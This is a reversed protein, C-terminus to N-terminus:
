RLAGRPTGAGAADKASSSTGSHGPLYRPRGARTIAATAGDVNNFSHSSLTVSSGQSGQIDLAAWCPMPSPSPEYRLAAELSIHYLRPAATPATRHGWRRLAFTTPVLATWAAHQVGLKKPTEEDSETMRHLRRNAFQNLYGRHPWHRMTALVELLQPGYLLVGLIPIGWRQIGTVYQMPQTEVPRRAVLTESM